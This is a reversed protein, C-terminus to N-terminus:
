KLIQRIVNTINLRTEGIVGIYMNYLPHPRGEEFSHRRLILHYINLGWLIYDNHSYKELSLQQKNM